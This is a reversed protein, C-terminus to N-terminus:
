GLGLTPDLPSWEATLRALGPWGVRLALGGFQFAFGCVAYAVLGVVLAGLATAVIEAASEPPTAGVALLIIAVSALLGLFAAGLHWGPWGTPPAEAALVPLPLLLVLGFALPLAITQRLSRM